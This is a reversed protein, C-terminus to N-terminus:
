RAGRAWWDLDEGSEELEVLVRAAREWASGNSGCFKELKRAARRYHEILEHLDAATIASAELARFGNRVRELM